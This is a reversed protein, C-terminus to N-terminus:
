LTVSDYNNWDRNTGAVGFIVYPQIFSEVYKWHSFATIANEGSSSYVMTSKTQKDSCSFITSTCNNEFLYVFSLLNKTTITNLCLEFDM